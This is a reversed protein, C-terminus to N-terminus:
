VHARGIQMWPDYADARRAHLIGVLKRALDVDASHVDSAAPALPRANGSTSAEAASSAAAAAQRHQRSERTRQQENFEECAARVTEECDARVATIQFKNSISLTEVLDAAAEIPGQRLRPAGTMADMRYVVTCAYAQGDPKKSGYMLWGNRYIVAEDIIDADPNAAGFEAFVAGAGLELVRKRLMLQIAPHTVVSPIIIHVGDKLVGKNLVPAPKELVYADYDAYTELLEAIARGYLGLVAEIHPQQYRRTTAHQPQAAQAAATDQAFRFDLDIVVPGIDRHRETLYLEEGAEMAACYLDLFEGFEDSPIYFSGSPRGLATHTYDSGRAARHRLLYQQFVSM